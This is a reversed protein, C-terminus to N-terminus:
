KTYVRNGRRNYKAWGRHHDGSLTVRGVGIPQIYVYSYIHIHIFTYTNIHTHRYIYLVRFLFLDMNILYALARVKGKTTYREIEGVWQIVTVVHCIVLTKNEIWHHNTRNNSHNLPNPLNFPICRLSLTPSQSVQDHLMTKNKNLTIYIYIYVCMYMCIREYMYM